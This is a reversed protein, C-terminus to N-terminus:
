SDSKHISLLERSELFINKMMVDTVVCGVHRLEMLQGAGIVNYYEQDLDITGANYGRYFYRWHSAEKQSSTENAEIAAGGQLMKREALPLATKNVELLDPRLVPEGGFAANEVLM